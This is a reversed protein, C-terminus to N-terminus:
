RTEKGNYIKVAFQMGKGINTLGNHIQICGAFFFLGFVAAAIILTM